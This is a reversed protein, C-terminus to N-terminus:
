GKCAKLALVKIRQTGPSPNCSLPGSGCFCLGTAKDFRATFCDTPNIESATCKALCTIFNDM